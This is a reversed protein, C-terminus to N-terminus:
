KRKRDLLRKEHSGLKKVPQTTPQEQLLSQCYERYLEPYKAMINLDQLESDHFYESYIEEPTKGKAQHLGWILSAYGKYFILWIETFEIEDPSLGNQKAYDIIDKETIDFDKEIKAIKEDIADKYQIYFIKSDKTTSYFKEKEPLLLMALLKEPRPKIGELQYISLKYNYLDQLNMNKREKM